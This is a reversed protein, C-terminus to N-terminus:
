ILAISMSYIVSRLLKKGFDRYEVARVTMETAGKSEDSGADPTLTSYKRKSGVLM